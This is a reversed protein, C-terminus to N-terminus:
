NMYIGLSVKVGFESNKITECTPCFDEVDITQTDGNADEYEWTPKQMNYYLMPELTVNDNFWHVYGASLGITSLKEEIGLLGSAWYPLMPNPNPQSSYSAGTFIKGEMLYYRTYVGYGFSSNSVDGQSFSSYGLQIGAVMNDIPFYGGMIAVNMTSASEVDEGAADVDNTMNMKFSLDSTAGIHYTGADVNQATLGLTFLGTIFLLGIKKM